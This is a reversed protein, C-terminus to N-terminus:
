GTKGCCKKFKKGSGCPCPDNRGVRGAAKIPEPRDPRSSNDIAARQQKRIGAAETQAAASPASEAHVAKAGGWIGGPGVPSAPTPAAADPADPANPQKGIELRLVLDSVEQRVSSKMKDFLIRAERTYEVKPDVQAYGRLGIGGKLHDMVLLHEKWKVDFKQLLLFREILRMREGGLETERRAYAERIKELATEGIQRAELKSLDFPDLAVGYKRSLSDCLGALNRERSALDLALFTEVMDDSCFRLCDERPKGSLRAVLQRALGNEVQAREEAIVAEASAQPLSIGLARDLWSLATSLDGQPEASLKEIQREFERTAIRAIMDAPPRNRIARKLREQIQERVANLQESLSDGEQESEEGGRQWQSIPLSIEAAEAWKELGRLDWEEMAVANEVYTAVAQEMLMQVASDADMEARQEKAAKEVAGILRKMFAARMEEAEAALGNHRAWRSLAPLNWRFFPTENQLTLAAANAVCEGISKEIPQDAWLAAKRSGFLDKIANRDRERWEAIEMTVGQKAAWDCFPRGNRDDSAIDTPILDNMEDQLTDEIMELILSKLDAHELVQQRLGYIAKRQEDMVEDYELLHKRIEFNHEEMKKQAREISRTVMGHQIAMGEEMGIHKLISSVRDSAFIRMLDDELSLFFRSSGPDGQRGARGRLQNDIRRAEHRETGIIHLGGLQAVATAIRLPSMQNERWFKELAEARKERPTKDLTEKDLFKQAWFETLRDRLEPTPADARLDKPALECSKWHELLEPITFAGLVIDTGRGAMNTAITVHGMQGAQAIIAAEREHQKANLVEHKIGRRKLQDSLRESKEISKTGVLVPRASGHQEVIEEEIAKFKEAETRYVVDPFETRILPRNTPVRIVELKYIKDFETAETMATGTMGALKKYLRFFNQYTVTALTQDEEKIKLGEKAEIAQHLGDSWRRGPMLRGTFEDVIIIEGQKVVYDVDRKWLSHARLAQEIHHPWDANRGSYISDVGLTKEAVAVGAETLNASKEKEKVTYHEEKHLRRAIRDAVYYKDTSEESPGSIILPTRAEDILINDVEDVIAYYLGRRQVQEEASWRMNDRLYDFGFESSMGFTIDCNYAERKPGYEQQHLIVGATLGLFEYLPGMWERDRAALYDNVTVIHVGRGLLANLYAALTAVLTKGEGTSMEAICGRHLVMGGVLQVDFHRMPQPNQLDPTHVVRRGAERVVAFADPLIINLERDAEERTFDRGHFADALRNRFEQTKASLAKDSLKQMVSELRNIEEVTELLSEILRENRSGFIGVFFEGIKKTPDM